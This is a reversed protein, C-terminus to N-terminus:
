RGGKSHPPGVKVLCESITAGWTPEDTLVVRWVRSGSRYTFINIVVAVGLEPRDKRIVWDRIDLESPDRELEESGQLAKDM